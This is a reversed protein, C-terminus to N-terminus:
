TSMIPALKLQETGAVTLPPQKPLLDIRKLVREDMRIPAPPAQQCPTNLFPLRRRTDSPICERGRAEGWALKLAVFTYNNRLCWVLKVCQSSCAHLRLPGTSGNVCASAKGTKGSGLM